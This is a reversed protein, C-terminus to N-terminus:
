AALPMEAGTIDVFVDEVYIGMRRAFASVIDYAQEAEALGSLADRCCSVTAEYAEDRARHPMELLFALADGATELRRPVGLGVLVTIPRQFSANMSSGKHNSTKKPHRMSRRRM